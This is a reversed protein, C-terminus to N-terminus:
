QSVLYAIVASLEDDTLSKRWSPMNFPAPGKPDRKGAWAGNLIQDRIANYRALVAPYRPLDPPPDARNLDGFQELMAIFREVSPKDYLLFQEALGDLAPITGGVYNPNTVGGSGAQGHCARCYLLFTERGRAVLEQPRKWPAPVSTMGPLPETLSKLYVSLALADDDSFGFDLMVSNTPQASPFRVAEYIYALNRNGDFRPLLEDRHEDVPHKLRTFADGIGRLEPGLYGGKGERRHCGLCGHSEFIQKGRNYVPTQELEGEHCRYCNAELFPPVLIPKNWHVEDDWALADKWTTARGQGDHCATCGFRLPDHTELYDGPHTRLPEAQESFRPDEIALHCSVCRDVRKMEPLYVQRLGVSLELKSEADLERLLDRYERQVGSWEATVREELLFLGTFLLVAVSSLILVTKM